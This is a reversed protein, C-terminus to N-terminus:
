PGPGEAPASRPHHEGKKLHHVLGEPGPLSDQPQRGALADRDAASPALALVEGYDCLLWTM